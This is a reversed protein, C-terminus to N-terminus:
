FYLTFVDHNLGAAVFFRNYACQPLKSVRVPIVSDPDRDIVTVQYRQQYAYPKDGAFKTSGSDRQYVIAPYDMQVSPPSQFYVHPPDDMCGELLAQLEM